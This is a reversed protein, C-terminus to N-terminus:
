HCIWCKSNRCLLLFNFYLFTIYMYMFHFFNCKKQFCESIKENMILFELCHWCTIFAASDYDEMINEHQHLVKVAFSFFYVYYLVTVSLM